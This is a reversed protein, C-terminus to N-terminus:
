NTDIWIATLDAPPSTGAYIRKNTFDTWSLNGAGDTIIGKGAHGTQSPLEDQKEPADAQNYLFNWTTSSLRYYKAGVADDKVIAIAGQAWSTSRDSDSECLYKKNSLKIYAM